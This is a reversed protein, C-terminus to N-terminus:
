GEVGREGKLLAKMAQVYWIGDISENTIAVLQEETELPGWWSNCGYVIRQRSPIWITPNHGSLYVQLIGTKANRSCGVSRAYDGLYLGLFTQGEFEAECPRVRVLRGPKHRRGPQCFEGTFTIGYIHVPYEITKFLEPEGLMSAISDECIKENETAEVSMQYLQRKRDELRLIEAEVAKLEQVLPNM